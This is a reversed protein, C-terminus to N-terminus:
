VWGDRGDRWLFVKDQPVDLVPIERTPMDILLGRLVRMVGGHAVIVSPRDLTSLWGGIRESLMAYSEGDPPLFGWKDARRAAAREADESALEEMTRGEWLGFGIEVLREDLRYAAPDLGLRERLIEMTERTRSLPSAVFDLGGLDIGDRELLAKLAEGNRAAQGRGKDNLPIDKRGQMRGEANWDTEGHRIFAFFPLTARRARDFTM